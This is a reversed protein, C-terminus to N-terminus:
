SITNLHAAYIQDINIHPLKPLCEHLKTKLYTQIKFDTPYMYGISQNYSVVNQLHTPLVSMSSKPIIILLQVDENVEYHKDPLVINSKHVEIFNYVDLILPSYDYTYLWNNRMVKNFYYDAVWRLGTVYDRSSDNIVTDFHSNMNFLKTYYSFRWNKDNFINALENNKNCIGFYEYKSQTTKCFMTKKFYNNHLQKMESYENELLKSFIFALFTYNIDYQNTESNHFVLDTQFTEHLTKYASVVKDIGDNYISLYSLQPLFDNGILFCLFVYSHISVKDDYYSAIQSRLAEVDLWLYPANNLHMHLKGYHQPERLLYKRTKTCLLSLMILDADLGYIVDVLKSTDHQEDFHIYNFIKHEGEGPSSCGSLVIRYNRKQRDIYDQLHSDLKKMFPTGPSIANSDWTYSQSDKIKTSLWSSLYRRKRQQVIKPLPAVGDIGIYLLLSPKVFDTVSQMNHIITNILLNEFNQADMSMDVNSKLSQFSTHIIGNFDLFLRDCREPPNVGVINRFNNTIKYFYHPIGM